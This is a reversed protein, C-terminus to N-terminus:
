GRSRQRPDNKRAWDAMEKAEDWTMEDGYTQKYHVALPDSGGNVNRRKPNGGGSRGGSGPGALREERPIVKPPAVPPKEVTKKAAPTDGPLGRIVVEEVLLPDRTFVQAAVQGVVWSAVGEMQLQEPTLTDRMNAIEVAFRRVAQPAQKEIQALERSFMENAHRRLTDRGESYREQLDMMMREAKVPDLLRQDAIEQLAEDSFIYKKLWERTYISRSAAPTAPTETARAAPRQVEPEPEIEVEPEPDPEAVTETAAIPDGNAETIVDDSWRLRGDAMTEVVTADTEEFDGPADPEPHLEEGDELIDSIEEDPM